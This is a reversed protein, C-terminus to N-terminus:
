GERVPDPQQGTIGLDTEMWVIIADSISRQRRAHAFATKLPIRVHRWGIEEIRM